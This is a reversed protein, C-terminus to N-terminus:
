WLLRLLRPFGEEKGIISSLGELVCEGRLSQGLGELGAGNGKGVSGGLKSVGYTEAGEMLVGEDEGLGKKLVYEISCMNMLTHTSRLDDIFFTWREFFRGGVVGLGRIRCCIM